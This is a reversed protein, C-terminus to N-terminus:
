PVTRDVEREALLARVSSFISYYSRGVSDKLQGADLLVKASTLRDEAIYLRGKTLDNM